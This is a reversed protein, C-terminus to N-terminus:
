NIIWWNVTTDKIVAQNTFIKLKTGEVVQYTFVSDSNEATVFILSNPTLATTEITIEASDKLVLAKGASAGAVDSIDVNFKKATISNLVKISGESTMVIKGGFAKINGAGYTNQLLLEGGVVNISNDESSLTLLGVSLNGSAFLDVFSSSGMVNLDGYLVSNNTVKLDKIESVNSIDLTEIDFSLNRSQDIYWEPSIAIQITGTGINANGEPMAGESTSDTGLGEYEADELAYGIIMGETIAKAGIGSETLSATIPDGRKIEGNENTVQIDVKGRTTVTASDEAGSRVAVGLINDRNEDKAKIVKTGDFSVLEGQNVNGDTVYDKEFVSTFITKELKAIRQETTNKLTEYDSQLTVLGDTINRIEANNVLIDITKNPDNALILNGNEDLTLTNTPTLASVANAVLRSVEDEIQMNAIRETVKEEVAEVTLSKNRRSIMVQITGQEKEVLGELAIGVTSDGANAKMLYGPISASTLSDGIRVAGNENSVKAPIQGLMAIIVAKESKVLEPKANGVLAPKTSVIGMINPDSVGRCRSVSNPNLVDICVAEGAQLNTDLTKFYEAYDAEISSGTGAYSYDGKANVSFVNSNNNQVNFVLDDPNLTGDSNVTLKSSPATTGVGLNGTIYTNHALIGNGVFNHTGEVEIDWVQERGVKKISIIEDFAVENGNPVDLLDTKEIDASPRVVAIKDGVKIDGVKKWNMKKRFLNLMNTKM